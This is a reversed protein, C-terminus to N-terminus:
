ADSKENETPKKKRFILFKSAIYNLVIVVVAAVIKAVIDKGALLYVGIFLILEEAGLSFLRAATFLGLETLLQKGTSGKVEFVLFKNVAYAFLVGVIWALINALLVEMGLTRTLLFFAVLNVVTTLVGFVLYRVIERLLGSQKKDNTKQEM